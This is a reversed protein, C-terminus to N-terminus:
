NRQKWHLVENRGQETDSTESNVAKGIGNRQYGTPFSSDGSEAPHYSGPPRVQGLVSQWVIEM